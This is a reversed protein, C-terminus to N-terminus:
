DIRPDIFGGTSIIINDLEVKGGLCCFQFSDINTWGDREFRITKNAVPNDFDFNAGASSAIDIHGPTVMTLAELRFPAGDVRRVTVMKTQQAITLTKGFLGMLGESEFVFEGDTFTKTIMEHGRNFDIVYYFTPANLTVSETTAANDTPMEKQCGVFVFAIALVVVFLVNLRKM